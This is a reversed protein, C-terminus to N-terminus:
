KRALAKLSEVTRIKESLHKRYAEIDEKRSQGLAELKETAKLLDLLMDHSEKNYLFGINIKGSQNYLEKVTTAELKKALKEKTKIATQAKEKTASVIKLKDEIQSILRALERDGIEEKERSKNILDSFEMLQTKSNETNLDIENIQDSLKKAANKWANFQERKVLLSKQKKDDERKSIPAITSFLKQVGWPPLLGQQELDKAKQRINKLQTLVESSVEEAAVSIESIKKAEELIENLYKKKESKKEEWEKKLLDRRLAAKNYIDQIEKRLNKYPRVSLHNKTNLEIVKNKFATVDSWLQNINCDVEEIRAVLTAIENKLDVLLKEKYEPSVVQNVDTVRFGKNTIECVKYPYYKKSVFFWNDFSLTNKVASTVKRQILEIKHEVKEALKKWQPEDWGRDKAIEEILDAPIKKEDFVLVKVKYDDGPLTEKPVLRVLTNDPNTYLGPKIIVFIEKTSEKVAEKNGTENVSTNETM